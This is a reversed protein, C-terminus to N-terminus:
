DVWRGGDGGSSGSGSGAAAPDDIGLEALLQEILRSDKVAVYLQEAAMAAKKSASRISLM